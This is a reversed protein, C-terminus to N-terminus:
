GEWKSTDGEKFWTQPVWLTYANSYNRGGKKRREISILDLEELKKLATRVTNESCLCKKALTNVSPHSKMSHNGAYMCLVAYVLKQVPNDLFIEDDLVLRTVRAFRLDDFNIVQKDKKM